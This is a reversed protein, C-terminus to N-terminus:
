VCAGDDDVGRSCILMVEVAKFNFGDSVKEAFVHLRVGGVADDALGIVDFTVEALDGVTVPNVQVVKSEVDDSEFTAAIIEGLEAMTAATPYGHLTDVVYATQDDVDGAYAVYGLHVWGETGEYRVKIWFAGPVTRTEGLAVLGMETPPIEDLIPRTAGPAARLNLVDDYRVGIVMLVDGARPGFDIPEGPITTTTPAPVTTTPPLTTTPPMTTAPPLTTSPATSTTPTTTPPSTTAGSDIGCGAMLMSLALVVPVRRM